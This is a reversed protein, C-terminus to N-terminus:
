HWWAHRHGGDQRQGLLVSGPTPIGTTLNPAYNTYSYGAIQGRENIAEAFADPGGLTGLDVKTGDQWLFSRTETTACMSSFCFMSYPDVTTNTAVGM